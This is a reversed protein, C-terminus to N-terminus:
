KVMGIEETNLGIKQAQWAVESFSPIAEIKELGVARSMLGQRIQESIEFVYPNFGYQKHHVAIGLDNLLCNSSNKGTDKTMKWGLQSIEAIIEEEPVQWALMPNIVNIKNAENKDKSLFDDLGYYKLAEKGMHTIYLQNARNRFGQTADLDVVMAASDKPVQGGIYGGAILTVRNQLAMKIMYTNILNICSNCMHSARKIAAKAHMAKETVSKVYMNKMFAPAPTYFIHDVGLAATLVQCNVRAQEAIFGNDITIALCNLGYEKVLKTLTYSSDKGGSYAVICDYHSTNKNQEIVQDMHEKLSACKENIDAVSPTDQCFNCVGEENFSISPFTEPLVCHCCLKIPKLGQM